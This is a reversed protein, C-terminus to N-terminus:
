HMYKLAIHNLSKHLFNVAMQIINSKELGNKLKERKEYTSDQLLGQIKKTWFSHCGQSHKPARTACNKSMIKYTDM